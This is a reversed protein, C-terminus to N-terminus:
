REAGPVGDTADTAEIDTAGGVMLDAPDPGVIRDCARVLGAAAVFFAITLSLFAVDRM